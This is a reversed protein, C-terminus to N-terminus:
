LTATGNSCVVETAPVSDNWSYKIEIAWWQEVTGNFTISTLSSCGLFASSDISTVSDGIVVSTLSSCDAFAGDEISTIGNGIVVRTLSHCGVFARLGMSTVSDPIEISTLRGCLYFAGYGISTVSDPIVVEKLSGCQYFAEEGVSTVGGPIVFETDTKGIAYQILTKGDKNYLNGDISKYVINNEAVTISSLSYCSRFVQEGISTISDPIVVSTLSDCGSFASNGTSIVSDPIEVSTLSDCGSFASNGISIVSDPIEVSTLHSCNGFAYDNISTVTDPIILETVLENNLYLNGGNLPNASSDGLEINCWAAMDTIYVDLSVKTLDASHISFAYQGISTVGSGVTVSKLSSCNHFAQYGINKVNDGIVISEINFEEFFAKKGIETVPLGNYTSPIVIDLEAAMGLGIVRYEDKGAIRQYHLGPTGKEQETEEEKEPMKVTQQTGDTLTILLNGDKDYEVKEIGVGPEGQEGKISVLWEEYSLPTDGKEEAYAVYQAYVAEIEAPQTQGSDSNGNQASNDGCAAFGLACTALCALALVKIWYRKM